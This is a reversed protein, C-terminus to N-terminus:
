MGLLSNISTIMSGRLATLSAGVEQLVDETTSSTYYAGVDSVFVESADSAGIQKNGSPTGIFLKGSDLAIAPEGSQLTPVNSENGRKIQISQAM